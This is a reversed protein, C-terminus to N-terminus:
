QFEALQSYSIQFLMTQKHRILDHYAYKSPSCSVLLTYSSLRYLQESLGGWAGSVHNVKGSSLNTTLQHM